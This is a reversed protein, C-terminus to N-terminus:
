WRKRRIVGFYVCGVAMAVILVVGVKGYPPEVQLGLFLAFSFMLCLVAIAGAHVLVRRVVLVWRRRMRLERGDGDVGSALSYGVDRCATPFVGTSRQVPM